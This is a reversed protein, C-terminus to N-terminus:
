EQLKMETVPTVFSYFLFFRSKLRFTATHLSLSIACIHHQFAKAEDCPCEFRWQKVQFLIWHKVKTKQSPLNLIEQSLKCLWLFTCWSEGYLWIIATQPQAFIIFSFLEDDEPSNMGSHSFYSKWWVILYTTLLSRSATYFELTTM